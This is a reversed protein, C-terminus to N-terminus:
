FSPGAGADWFHQLLSLPVDTTDLHDREPWKHLRMQFEHCDGGDRKIEHTRLITQLQAIQDANHVGICSDLVVANVDKSIAAHVSRENDSSSKPLPRIVVAVEAGKHLRVIQSPLLRKYYHM